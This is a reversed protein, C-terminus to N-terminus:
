ANICFTTFALAYHPRWTQELCYNTYWAQERLRFCTALVRLVIVRAGNVRQTSSGRIEIAETDKLLRYTGM